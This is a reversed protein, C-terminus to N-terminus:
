KKALKSPNRLRQDLYNLNPYAIETAAWKGEELVFKLYDQDKSLKSFEQQFDALTIEILQALTLKLQKISKGLFESQFYELPQGTVILFLDVLSQENPGNKNQITEQDRACHNMIKGTATDISDTMFITGQKNLDSKSMKRKPDVLNM